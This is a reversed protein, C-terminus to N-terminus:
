FVTQHFVQFPLIKTTAKKWLNAPSGCLHAHFALHQEHPFWGAAATQLEWFLCWLANGVALSCQLTKYHQNVKGWRGWCIFLWCSLSTAIAGQIPFWRYKQWEPKKYLCCVDLISLYPNYLFINSIHPGLFTLNDSKSLLYFPWPVCDSNMLGHIWTDFGNLNSLM